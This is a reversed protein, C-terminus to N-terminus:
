CPSRSRTRVVVIAAARVEVSITPKHAGAYANQSEECILKLFSAFVRHPRVCQGPLSLPLGNGDRGRSRAGTVSARARDPNRVYRKQMELVSSLLALSNMVRHQLERLLFSKQDVLDHIKDSMRSVASSLRGFESSFDPFPAATDGAERRRATDVIARIPRNILFYTAIWASGIALLMTILAFALSRANVYKAEALAVERDIAVTVFLSAPSTDVPM